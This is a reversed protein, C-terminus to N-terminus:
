SPISAVMRLSTTLEEMQLWPRLYAVASYAGPRGVQEEVSVKAEVLPYQAKSENGIAYPNVYQHVWASLEKEVDSPSLNSGVRERGIVKLYQAIRSSAMTYPLRASIAANATAEADTYSKPKHTSQAGMFVAFNTNKYHVLPLFGLDSLEKEREDTLNVETPCQQILEEAASHYTFNPLNEVKGGNDSGRIATCWGFQTYAQTLLLGFDYAANSWVFNKDSEVQHQGKEGMSLEEFHFSKVSVTANGYPLRAMTKPLTLAVYRSDDSERFANWSAYTPSDFGAAVPKGDAFSSFSAFDFMDASAAAIFPAHSASAVEGLYRLLATDEEGYGFEYDGILAGYPEGGATGFEEQYVTTFLRSRDIAPAIEFQELLEQKTYNSLKIKLNPGLESNKVLKHLGLWTGEIKQFESDQMVQSLQESIKSDLASIAKDITFTLSKDWSVTGELAQSTLMGLLEKTSDVPTQTTAKIVRDLFSVSGEAESAAQSVFQEEPSM